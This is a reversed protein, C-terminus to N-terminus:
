KMINGYGILRWRNGVMRSITIRDDKFCCVPIRLRVHVLDKKLESVVGVTVSSNVNLMLNEGRKIPDVKLEDKTGVVRELLFPKLDFESWVPPLKNKLGVINGTLSDAKVFSPDLQTLIGISGGPHVEKVSTGGTKIGVIKTFIPYYIKKGEKETSMGPRLEIEDNIKLIGQKLAGGIVGGALNKIETGPKNIDFSRAAFMVPDKNQDRSPTKIVDQIAEILYSININHQASIPIIPAKEAITGKVFEKIQEYNKLAEEKSVLDIKNQAIIISKLGIIQLAMLHEKTQPQPCPENAAILLIAGDMIAAGSLMTAMLSEHGPADVISIKRLLTTKSKCKQCTSKNTYQDEKCKSCKYLIIDAYGLRITIGRKLEESHIALWRGSLALALTTKGNDVHGVLGINVEPQSKEIEKSTDIKSEKTKTATKKIRPLM